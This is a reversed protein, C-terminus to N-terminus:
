EGMMLSQQEMMQGMMKQMLDMREEMMEHCKMMDRGDWKEQKVKPKMGSGHKMEMGGQMMNMMDRMETMHQQMLEKRRQMDNTAHAEHMLAQMKKMRKKMEAQDIMWVNGSHHDEASMGVANGEASHGEASFVMSAILVLGLFAAGRIFNKM